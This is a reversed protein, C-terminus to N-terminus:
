YAAGTLTFTIPANVKSVSGPRFRWRRFGSIAANDLIPSGTSRVISVNAVAGSAPDILLVAVGSGTLRQRRAEYPYEPRPASLAFVKASSLSAPGAVGASTPEPIPPATHVPVRKREPVPTPNEEAVDSQMDPPPEPLAPTFTVPIGEDAPTITPAEAPEGRVLAVACAFLLITGLLCVWIQWRDKPKYLLAQTKEM